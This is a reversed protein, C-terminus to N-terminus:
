AAWAGLFQLPPLPALSEDIYMNVYIYIYIYVCGWSVDNHFEGTSLFVRERERYIYIYVCVYVCVYTHIHTCVCM